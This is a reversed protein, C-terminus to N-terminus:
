GVAVLVVALGDVGGAVEVARGELVRALEHGSEALRRLRLVAQQAVEEAVGGAVGLGAGIRRLQRPPLLGEGRAAALEARKEGRDGRAVAEARNRRSGSACALCGMALIIRLRRARRRPARAPPPSAVM